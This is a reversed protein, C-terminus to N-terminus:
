LLNPSEVQAPLHDPEELTDCTRAQSIWYQVMELSPAGTMGVADVVQAHLAEPQAVKLDKLGGVGLRRVIPLYRDMGSIELLACQRGFELLRDPSIGVRRSLRERDIQLTVAHLLQNSHQYGRTRLRRCDDPSIGPLYELTKMAM